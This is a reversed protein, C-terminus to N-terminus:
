VLGLELLDVLLSWSFAASSLIGACIALACHSCFHADFDPYFVLGM